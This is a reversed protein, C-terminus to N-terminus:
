TADSRHVLKARLADMLEAERELHTRYDRSHSHHIQHQRERVTAELLADLMEAEEVTLQDGNVIDKERIGEIINPIGTIDLVGVFGGWIKQGITKGSQVRRVIGAIIGYVVFGVVGVLLIVGAVFLWVIGGFFGIIIAVIAVIALAVILLLKGLAGLIAWFVRKLKYRIPHDYKYRAKDAAEEMADELKDLPKRNEALSDDVGKTIAPKGKALAQM